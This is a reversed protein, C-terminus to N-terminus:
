SNCEKSERSILIVTKELNGNVPPNFKTVKVTIKIFKVQRSIKELIRGAAHEILNSRIAMEQKVLNYVTTYDITDKLDDSVFSKSMDTEILVDVSFRGGIVSEEDLCGHYAYCEIGEVSILSERNM